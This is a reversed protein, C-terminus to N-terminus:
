MEVNHKECVFITFSISRYFCNGDGYVKVPTLSQPADFPYLILSQDDQIFKSEFGSEPYPHYLYLKREKKTHSFIETSVGGGKRQHMRHNM